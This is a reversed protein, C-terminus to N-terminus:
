KGKNELHQVFREIYQAASRPGRADGCGDEGFLEELQKENLGFHEQIEPYTYFVEHGSKKSHPFRDRPYDGGPRGWTFARQLDQRAVYHGLACAPTGCENRFAVMRFDKPIESERLARAVNLLRKKQIANM